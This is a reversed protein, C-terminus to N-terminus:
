NLSTGDMNIWAIGNFVISKGLTTDFFIFGTSESTLNPREETSGYKKIPTIDIWLTTNNWQNISYGQFQYLRWLGDKDIYTVLQGVRRLNCPIIKIVEEISTYSVDFDSTANILNSNQALSLQSILDNLYMKVNNGNQIFVILESGNLPTSAENFKTDRIANQLIWRHIKKYDEETFFM